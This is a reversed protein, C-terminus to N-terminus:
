NSRQRMLAKARNPNCLTRWPTRRRHLCDAAIGDLYAIVVGAQPALDPRITTYASLITRAVHVDNLVGLADQVASLKHIYRAAKHPRAIARFFEVAYRAQKCGIRLRHLAASDCGGLKQVKRARKAVVAHAANVARRAFRRLPKRLRTRGAPSMDNPWRKGDVWAFLDPMLPAYRTSQVAARAAAHKHQADAEAHDFLAHLFARHRGADAIRPLTVRLLVDADRAAGLLTGVEELSAQLHAPLAVVSRFLKLCSTFRRMGVRLQHLYEPEDSDLFGQVNAQAHALCGTLIRRMGQEVSARAPLDITGAKRPAIGDRPRTVSKKAACDQLLRQASIKRLRAATATLKPAAKM